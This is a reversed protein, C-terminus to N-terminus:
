LIWPVLEKKGCLGVPSLLLFSHQTQRALATYFPPTVNAGDWLLSQKGGLSLTGWLAMHTYM